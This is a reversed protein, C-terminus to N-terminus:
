FLASVFWYPVDLNRAEVAPILYWRFGAYILKGNREDASRGPDTWNNRSVSFAHLGRRTARWVWFSAHGPESGAGISTGGKMGYTVYHVDGDQWLYVTVALLLSSLAALITFRAPM